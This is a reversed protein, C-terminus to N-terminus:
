LVCKGIFYFVMRDRGCQVLSRITCFEATGGQNAKCFLSEKKGNVGSIRQMKMCPELAPQAKLSVPIECRSIGERYTYSLKIIRKMVM